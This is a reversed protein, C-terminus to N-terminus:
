KSGRSILTHIMSLLKEEDVPKTLFGDCGAAMAVDRDASMAHATLIIVPTSRIADDERILRLADLGSMGPLSIDMLVLDPANELILTLGDEAQFAQIMTMGEDELIEEILAMNDPNDEVVLITAM